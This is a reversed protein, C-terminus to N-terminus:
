NYWARCRVRRNKVKGWSFNHGKKTLQQVNAYRASGACRM